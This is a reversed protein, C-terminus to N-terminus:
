SLPYGIRWSKPDTSIYIPLFHRSALARAYLLEKRVWDEESALRDMQAIWSRGIVAIIVKSNDVNGRIAEPFQGGTPNALEDNDYFSDYGLGKLYDHIRGASPTDADGRRYSIFIEM